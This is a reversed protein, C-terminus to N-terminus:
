DSTSLGLVGYLGKLKVNLNGHEQSPELTLKVACLHEEDSSTSRFCCAILKGLSMEKRYVATTSYEEKEITKFALKKGVREFLGFVTEKTVELRVSAQYYPLKSAQAERVKSSAKAIYDPAQPMPLANATALM